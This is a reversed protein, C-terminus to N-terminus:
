SLNKDRKIKCYPDLHQSYNQASNPVLRAEHNDAAIGLMFVVIFFIFELEAKKCKYAQLDQHM